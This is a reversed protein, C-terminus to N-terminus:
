AAHWRCVTPSTICAQSRSLSEKPCVEEYSLLDGLVIETTGDAHVLVEKRLSRYLNRRQEPTLSDLAEESAGAYSELVADKDRELQAIEGGYTKAPGECWGARFGWLSGPGKDYIPVDRM